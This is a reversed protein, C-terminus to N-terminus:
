IIVLEFEIKWKQFLSVKNGEYFGFFKCQVLSGRWGWIGEIEVIEGKLREKWEWM